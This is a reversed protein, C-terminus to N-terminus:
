SKKAAEAPRLWRELRRKIWTLRIAMRVALVKAYGPTTTRRSAHLALRPPPGGNCAGLYGGRVRDAGSDNSRWAIAGAARGTCASSAAAVKSCAM